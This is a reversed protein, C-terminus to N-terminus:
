WRILFAFWVKGFNGEGIEDEIECEFDIDQNSKAM